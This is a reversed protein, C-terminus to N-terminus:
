DLRGDTIDLEKFNTTACGTFGAMFDMAEVATDFDFEISVSWDESLKLSVFSKEDLKDPSEVGESGLVMIMDNPLERVIYDCGGGTACATLNERAAAARIIERTINYGSMEAIRRLTPTEAGCNCRKDNFLACWAKHSWEPAKELERKRQALFQGLKRGEREAAKMRLNQSAAAKKPQQKTSMIEGGTDSSRRDIDALKRKQL